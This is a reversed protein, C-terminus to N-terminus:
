AGELELINPSDATLTVIAKKWNPTSGVSPRQGRKMSVKRSKGRVRLINVSAVKVNDKSFLEEIAGAVETRTADIAVMFTYKRVKMDALQGQLNEKGAAKAKIVAKTFKQLKTLGVSKETLIPKILIQHLPRNM